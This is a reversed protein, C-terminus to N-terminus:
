KNLLPLAEAEMIRLQWFLDKTLALGFWDRAVKGVKSIDLGQYYLGGMGLHLTWYSGCAQFLQAADWHEPWVECDAEAAEAQVASPPVLEDM